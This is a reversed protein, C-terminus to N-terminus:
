KATFKGQVGEILVDERYNFATDGVDRYLVVFYNGGASTPRLLEVTVAAHIGAPVKAAGLINGPAGNREERVAVWVPAVAIVQAIVATGGATQNNALIAATEKTITADGTEKVPVSAAAAATQEAASEKEKVVTKAKANKGDSVATENSSRESTLRREQWFAGAGFGIILGIILATVIKAGASNNEPQM